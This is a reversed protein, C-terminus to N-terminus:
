DYYEITRSYSETTNRQKDVIEAQVWNGKADFVYRITKDSTLNPAGNNVYFHRERIWNGKPDYSFKLVSFEKGSKYETVDMLEGTKADYGFVYESRQGKVKTLRKKGDYEYTDGGYQIMLGYNNYKSQIWGQVKWNKDTNVKSTDYQRTGDGLTRESYITAAYYETDYVYTMVKTGEEMMMHPIERKILRGQDDYANKVHYKPTGALYTVDYKEELVDGNENFLLYNNADQRIAKVKGKLGAPNSDTTIFLGAPFRGLTCYSCPKTTGDKLVEFPYQASAAMGCFLLAATLFHKPKIM